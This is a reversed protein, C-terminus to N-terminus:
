RLEVVPVLWCRCNPHAPPRDFTQGAFNGATYRGGPHVFPDGLKAQEANRRQDRQSTAEPGETSFRMGGLPACIQCVAEDNATRWEKGVVVNSATWAMVAGKAFANTVETEAILKARRKDFGWGMQELTEILKNLGEGTEKWQAIAKRMTERSTQNLEVMLNRVHNTVWQIGDGALSSWDIDDLQKEVGYIADIQSRGVDQGLLVAENIMNFLADQIDEDGLTVNAEASDVAALNPLALRM